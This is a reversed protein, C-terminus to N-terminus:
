LSYSFMITMPNHKYCLNEVYHEGIDKVTNKCYYNEKFCIPYGQGSPLAIYVSTLGNNNPPKINDMVFQMCASQRVGDFRVTFEKSVNDSGLGIANGRFVSIAGRWPNYILIKDKYHGIFNKPLTDTKLNIDEDANKGYPHALHVAQVILQLEKGANDIDMRQYLDATKLWLFGLVAGVVMVAFAM